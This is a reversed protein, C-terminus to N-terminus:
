EDRGGIPITVTFCAGEPSNHVELDGNFHKMLITQSMYLGLGTGNKDTKTTFYPEFIRQMIEEPIGGGNDCLEIKISQKDEYTKVKIYKEVDANLELLADKANKLINIFVHLLEKTFISVEKESQYDKAIKINHYDLSKGIVKFTDELVKSVTSLTKEQKPLFFNKFDDITTSLYETQEILSHAVISVGKDNMTGLEIDALLNNAEMSITSIPQRWQHAILSMMEGMAILRSQQFMLQDKERSKAVEEKIRKQLTVNLQEIEEKYEQVKTIDKDAGRYGMLRGQEDFIPVGNTLLCVRDGSKSYNWNILDTFAEAKKAIEGFESAVREVEDECMTDFPTKGVIEEPRYGLIREVDDSAYTYVGQKDVEWIFDTSAQIIDDLKKNVKAEDILLKYISIVLGVLVAIYSLQKLIHALDFQPDFLHHSFSMYFTQAIFNIILSMILWYEFDNTQWKKRRYFGYLAYAFFAAPLLEEPRHFFLADYYATPLPVFAFLAFFAVTFLASLVYVKYESIRHIRMQTLHYISAAFFVSLFLRAAVWSWPILSEPPSPFFMDFLVSTVVTHYLELASTGLFGAGIFLFLQNAKNAYYHILAVIGVMLALLTAIAEILTHVNKSSTWTDHDFIFSVAILFVSLFVFSLQKYQIDSAM